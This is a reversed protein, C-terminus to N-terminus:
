TQDEDDARKRKSGTPDARPPQPPLTTAVSPGNISPVHPYRIGAPEQIPSSASSTAQGPPAVQSPQTNSSRPKPTKTSSPQETDETPLNATRKNTKSSATVGTETAKSPIKPPPMLLRDPLLAINPQEITRTSNDGPMTSSGNAASHAAAQEHTQDQVQGIIQGHETRVPADTATGLAPPASTAESGNVTTVELRQTISAQTQSPSPQVPDGRGAKGSRTRRAPEPEGAQSPIASDSEAASTEFAGKRKGRTREKNAKNAYAAKQRDKSADETDHPPPKETNQDHEAREPEKWSDTTQTASDRRAQQSPVQAPTGETDTSHQIYIGIKWTRSVDKMLAHAPLLLQMLKTILEFGTRAKQAQYSFGAAYKALSKVNFHKARQVFGAFAKWDPLLTAQPRPFQRTQSNGKALMKQCCILTMVAGGGVLYPKNFGPKIGPPYQQAARLRDREADMAARFTQNDAPQKETSQPTTAQKEVVDITKAATSMNPETHEPPYIAVEDGDIKYLVQILFDNFTHRASWKLWEKDGGAQGTHRVHLIIGKSSERPDIGLLTKSIEALTDMIEMRPGILEINKTPKDYISKGQSLGRTDWKVSKRKDQTITGDYVKIFDFTKIAWVDEYPNFYDAIYCENWFYQDEKSHGGAVEAIPTLLLGKERAATNPSIMIRLKNGPTDPYLYERSLAFFREITYPADYKFSTTRAPRYVFVTGRARAQATATNAHDSPVPEPVMESPSQPNPSAEPRDLQLGDLSGNVLQINIKKQVINEKTVSAAVRSLAEQVDDSLTPGSTADVGSWSVNFTQGNPLDLKYHNRDKFTQPLFILTLFSYDFVLSNSVAKQQWQDWDASVRLSGHDPAEFILEGPEYCDCEFGCELADTHVWIVTESDGEDVVPRINQLYAKKDAVLNGDFRVKRTLEGRVRIEAVFPVSQKQNPRRDYGFIQQEHLTLAEALALFSGYDYNTLWLSAQHGYIRFKPGQTPRLEKARVLNPTENQLGGRGAQTLVHIAFAIRVRESIPLESNDDQADEYAEQEDFNGPRVDLYTRYPEKPRPPSVLNPSRSSNLPAIKSVWSIM